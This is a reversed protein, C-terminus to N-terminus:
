AWPPWVVDQVPARPGPKRGGGRGRGSSPPVTAWLRSPSLGPCTAGGNPGRQVDGTVGPRPRGPGARLSSPPWGSPARDEGHLAGSSPYEAESPPLRHPPSPLPPSLHPSLWLWLGLQHCPLGSPTPTCRPPPGGASAWVLLLWVGQTLDKAVRAPSLSPPLRATELDSPHPTILLMAHAAPCPHLPSM